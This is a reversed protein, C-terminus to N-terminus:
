GSSACIAYVTLAKSQQTANQGWVVWGGDFPLSSWLVFGAEGSPGWRYGGGIVVPSSVPCFAHVGSASGGGITGAGEARVVDSIPKFSLEPRGVAGTAVDAGTVSNDLIKRGTVANDRLDAYTVQGAAIDDTFVSNSGTLSQAAGATLLVVLAVYSALRAAVTGM